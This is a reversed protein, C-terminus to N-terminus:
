TCRPWTAPGTRCAWPASPGPWRTGGEEAPYSDLAAFRAGEPLFSRTNIRHALTPDRGQLFAIVRGRHRPLHRVRGSITSRRPRQREPLAQAATRLEDLGAPTFLRLV